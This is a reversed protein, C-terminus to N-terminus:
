ARCKVSRGNSQSLRFLSDGNDENDDGRCSSTFTFFYRHSCMLSVNMLNESSDEYTEYQDLRLRKVRLGKQGDLFLIM